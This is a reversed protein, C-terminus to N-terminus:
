KAQTNTDTAQINTDTPHQVLSVPLHTLYVFAHTLQSVSQAAFTTPTTPTTPAAAVPDAVAQATPSKMAKEPPMSQIPQKPANAMAGTTAKASKAITKRVSMQGAGPRASSEIKTTPPKASDVGAGATTAAETHPQPAESSSTSGASNSSTTAIPTGDPRVMVERVSELRATQSATLPTGAAAKALAPTDATTAVEVANSGEAPRQVDIAASTKTTLEKANTGAETSGVQMHDPLPSDKMLPGGSTVVSEGAPPQINSHGQMPAVSLPSKPVTASPKLALGAGAVAAIGLALGSAVLRWRRPRLHTVERTPDRHQSDAGCPGVPSPRLSGYASSDGASDHAKDFDSASVILASPRPAFPPHGSSELLHKLEALLEEANAQRTTGSGLRRKFEEQRNERTGQSTMECEQEGEHVFGSGVVPRITMADLWELAMRTISIVGSSTFRIPILSILRRPAPPNGPNSPTLSKWIPRFVAQAADVSHRAFLSCAIRAGM